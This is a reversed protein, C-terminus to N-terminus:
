VTENIKRRTTITLMDGKVSLKQNGALSFAYDNIHLTLYREEFLEELSLTPVFLVFKFLHGFVDDPLRIMKMIKATYERDHTDIFCVLNDEQHLNSFDGQAPSLDDTSELNEGLIDELGTSLIVNDPNELIRTFEKDDTHM